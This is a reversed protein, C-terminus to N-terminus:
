LQTDIGISLQDNPDDGDALIQRELKKMPFM